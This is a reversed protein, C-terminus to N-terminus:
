EASELDYLKYNKLNSNVEALDFAESNFAGGIWELMANHEEHAPDSIIELFDQYGWIGGCDEPPCARAGAICVPYRQKPEAKAVEEIVVDHEWGDGFDYMYSFRNNPGPAVDDLRVQSEDEMDLELDPDGYSYDVGDITFSHLHCNQWGMAAQLMLHLESLMTDSPVQVRRWIPPNIGTLTIKIQYVTKVRSSTRKTM